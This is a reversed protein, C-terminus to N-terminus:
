VEGVGEKEEADRGLEVPTRRAVDEKVDASCQLPAKNAIKEKMTEIEQLDHEGWVGGRTKPVPDDRGGNYVTCEKYLIWRADERQSQRVIIQETTVTTLVIQENSKEKSSARM